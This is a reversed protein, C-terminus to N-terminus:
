SRLEELGHEKLVDSIKVPARREMSIDMAELMAMTVLGEALDPKPTQGEALCRAVYELYNQYEGAHHSRGEFRFFYDEMGEFHEIIGPQGEIKKAYRLEHYDAQTCGNSCRLVCSMCSEREVPQIPGSYSGSVRAVRGEPTRLVFHMIDPHRLGMERGNTSLMGYGMVEEVEPMYWRVLDGPHCICGYVWKFVSNDTWPKRLYWRHDYNYHAEVTFLEGLQGSDFDRRQQIFPQFFRTSQGVFLWRGSAGAAELVERGRALGDLLPKTCVVHKGADFAQLIHEAHFRDPTYIGIVEIDEDALMDEYKLTYRDFNFERCREKCLDENLDCIAVLEIVDSKLAASMLSRGESVGLIGLKM